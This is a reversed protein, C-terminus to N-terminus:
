NFSGQLIVKEPRRDNARELTIVVGKYDSYDTVSEFELLYGGKALRMAGTSIMAYNADGQKGRVLWAEYYYGRAPDPLDALVTHIFRGNEVKRTAIGSSEGGTIDVLDVREVDDPITFNFQEKMKQEFNSIPTPTPAPITTRPKRILYIGVLVLILIVIGILIDRTNKSIRKMILGLNDSRASYTLNTM